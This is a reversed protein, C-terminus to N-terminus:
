AGNGHAGILLLSASLTSIVRGDQGFAGPLPTVHALGPPSGTTSNPSLSGPMVPTAPNLSGKGVVGAPPCAIAWRTSALIATTLPGLTMGFM